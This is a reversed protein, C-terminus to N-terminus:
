FGKKKSCFLAYRYAKTFVKEHIYISREPMTIDVHQNFCLAQFAHSSLCNGSVLVHRNRSVCNFLTLLIFFVFYSFSPHSSCVNNWRAKWYYILMEKWCACLPTIMCRKPWTVPFPVSPCLLCHLGLGAALWHRPPQGPTVSNAMKSSM